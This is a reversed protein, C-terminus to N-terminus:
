PTALLDPLVAALRRVSASLRLRQAAVITRMDALAREFDDNIVVFEFEAYHSMDSVADQLRRNIVADSDTNRNRLRQELVARSPPLVFIGVANPFFTRVQRAGQWDIELILDVSHQLREAVKERSTGYYNEFVKAHELFLGQMIMREFAPVDVFHYHVGDHEGPRPKRTTYSVSVELGSTKELLAKVLSTKGAGSPATVIFLSGAPSPTSNPM